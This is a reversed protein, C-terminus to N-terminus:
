LPKFIRCYPSPTSHYNPATTTQYYSPIPFEKKDTARYGNLQKKYCQM